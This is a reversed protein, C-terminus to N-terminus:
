SSYLFPFNPSSAKRNNGNGSTATAAVDCCEKGSFGEIGRLLLIWFESATLCRSIGSLFKVVCFSYVGLLM